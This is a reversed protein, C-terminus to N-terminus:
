AKPKNPVAYTIVGTCAAAVIAWWKDPDPLGAALAATVGSGVVSAIAKAYELISGPAVPAAHDAM